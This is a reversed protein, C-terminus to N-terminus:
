CNRGCGVGCKACKPIHVMHLFTFEGNIDALYALLLVM